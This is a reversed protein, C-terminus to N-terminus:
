DGNVTGQTTHVVTGDDRYESIEVTTADDKGAPEGADLYRAISYAGGNPTPGARCEAVLAGADDRQEGRTFGLEACHDRAARTSSAAPTAAQDCAGCLM